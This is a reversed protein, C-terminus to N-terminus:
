RRKIDKEELNKLYKKFKGYLAEGIIVFKVMMLGIIVTFLNLYSKQLGIYLVVGYILYRILYRKLTFVRAASFDKEIAESVTIALLRFMLLSTSTGMLYGWLWDLQLSLALSITILGAVKLVRSRVRAETRRLDKQMLDSRM